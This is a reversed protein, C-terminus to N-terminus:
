GLPGTVRGGAPRRELRGGGPRGLLALVTSVLEQNSARAKVFSAAVHDTVDRDAESASFLVVPVAPGDPGDLVPLLDLGSGDPLTLDLILLEFSEHALLERAAALTAAPVVTAAARLMTGVVATLDADDEVHLIRPRHGASGTTQRVAQVLRARDIPKELWDVVAVTHGDVERRGVDAKASVVIIPLAATRPDARLERLLSLGDQDPLMLDLTMATYDRDALLRRAGAANYALDVEYGEPALMLGLLAAVDHDDECILVRPRLGVPGQFPPAPMPAEEPEWEPLDFLFTTGAGPRTEFWIQGHHRELIAKAISLGLGTGGRRRSDSSDAQAFKSFVQPHFDLPIGPGQDAVAVRLAAGARRVTVQVTGGPPSFKAANSLLNTLVQIVRDPDANVRGGRVDAPADLAFGVNYQAGFARNAELAQEVLAPLNVPRPHFVVAGSEIKEIDLIDNILRVLRESNKQAIDIMSLAQPPIDGAVGAAVLGLSGRISTLPTRLEHSVTSIFENKLRDIKKRENIDRCNILIGGVHSDAALDKCNAEVYTWSGDAGALRFEGVVNTRPAAHAADLVARAAAADDWHVYSLLNRGVMAPAPFGLVREVSPSLYRITGDLDAIAILDASNQVLARFRDESRRVSREEEALKRESLDHAVCCVVEREGRHIVSGTLELPLVSGDHRRFPLEGLTRRGGLAVRVLLDTVEAPPAAVMGDLTRGVLDAPTGGLLRAFAANVEILTRSEADVLFIGDAAQEVVARYGAQSEREGRAAQELAALMGNIDAALGALEDQGQVPVREALSNSRGVTALAARLRALPTLVSHELLLLLALAFALGLVVLAAMSYLVTRRGQAYLTRPIEARLVVAPRGYVDSLLLYGLLTQNDRPVLTIPAAPTLATLATHFDAPLAPDGVRYATLAAVPTKALRQLEAADLFRAFLITGGVPGAPDTPVIPAAAILLPGEALPLIGTILSDRTPHQLILNDATLYQRLSEPFPPETGTNYDYTKAAVIQGGTNLLVMLNLRNSKLTEDDNLNAAAFADNRGQVYADLDDWIGWDRTLGGLATLSDDLTGRVRTLDQRADVQEQQAFGQLVITQAVLYAAAALGLFVLGIILLTRRRLTM